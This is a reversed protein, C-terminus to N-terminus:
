VNENVSKLDIFDNNKLLRIFKVLREYLPNADEGFEEKIILAVEGLKRKNDIANWVGSGLDDLSVVKKDPTKAIKRVMRDLFGDRPIILDVLNHENIEEIVKESKVPVLELINKEKKKTKKM